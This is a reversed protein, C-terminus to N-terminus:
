GRAAKAKAGVPKGTAIKIGEYGPFFLDMQVLILKLSSSLCHPFPQSGPPSVMRAPCLVAYRETTNLLIHTEELTAPRTITALPSM